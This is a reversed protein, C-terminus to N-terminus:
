NSKKRAAKRLTKLGEKEKTNLKESAAAFATSTIKAYNKKLFSFTEKHYINGIERLAWGVGKQVFYDKDDLLNEVFPILTPYPLVKNRKSHYHILGVVSQRREWPNKSANWKKLQPLVTEPIIELLYSYLGSLGDSHAWNDIKGTWGKLCNWALKPDMKEINKEWFLVAQTMSDHLTSQQWIGDWIKIQEEPKLSSFSYAKKSLARHYPISLGIINYQTGIYKKLFAVDDTKEGVPASQLVKEVEKLPNNIPMIKSGIYITAFYPKKQESNHSLFGTLPM